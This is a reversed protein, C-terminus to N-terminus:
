NGPFKRAATTTMQSAQYVVSFQVAGMTVGRHSSIMDQTPNNELKIAAIVAEVYFHFEQALASLLKELKMNFQSGTAIKM